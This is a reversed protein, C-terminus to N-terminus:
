PKIGNKIAEEYFKLMGHLVGIDTIAVAKMRLENVRQILQTIQIVGRGISYETMVHLHVFKRNM